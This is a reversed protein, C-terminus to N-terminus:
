AAVGLEAAWCAIFARDVENGAIRLVRAVDSLHRESRSERYYVLKEAIVDYPASVDATFGDAFWRAVEGGVQSSDWDPHMARVHSTMLQRALEGMEFAMALRAAGSMAAFIPVM